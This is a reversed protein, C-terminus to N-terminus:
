SYLLDFLDVMNELWSWLEGCDKATASLSFILRQGFVGVIVEGSCPGDHQGELVEERQERKHGGEGPESCTLENYRDNRLKVWEVFGIGTELGFRWAGDEASALDCCGVETQDRVIYLGVLQEVAGGSNIAGRDSGRCRDELRSERLQIAEYREV